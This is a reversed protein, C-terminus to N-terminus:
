RHEQLRMRVHQYYVSPLKNPMKIGDEGMRLATKCSTANLSFDCFGKERGYDSQAPTISFRIKIWKSIHSNIHHM